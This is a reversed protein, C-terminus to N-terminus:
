DTSPPSSRASLHIGAQVNASQSESVIPRAGVVGCLSLSIVRMEKESKKLRGSKARSM